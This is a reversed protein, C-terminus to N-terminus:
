TEVGILGRGGVSPNKEKNQRRVKSNQLCDKHWPSTGRGWKHISGGMGGVPPAQDPGIIM